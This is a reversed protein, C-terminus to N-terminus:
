PTQPRPSCNPPDNMFQRWAAMQRKYEDTEGTAACRRRAEDTNCADIGAEYAMGEDYRCTQRMYNLYRQVAVRLEDAARQGEDLARQMEPGNHQEMFQRAVNLWFHARGGALSVEECPSQMFEVHTREHIEACPWMCRPVRARNISWVPHGLDLDCHTEGGQTVRGPVTQDRTVERVQTTLQYVENELSDLPSPARPAERETGTEGTSGAVQEARQGQSSQTEATDESQGDTSTERQVNSRGHTAQQIVHTLEHAILQRGTTSGPAYQGTGFVINPGVTYALARVARASEVAKADKHIRVQSFDYQFRPEMYARTAAELPQGSSNLAERVIPPATMGQAVTGAEKRQLKEEEECKACKRQLKEEEECQACKRQVVSVAHLSTRPQPVGPEPMRMVQEAVRDAEQEYQDGPENVVLKRQIATRSLLSVSVPSLARDVGINRFSWDLRPVPQPERDRGADKTV